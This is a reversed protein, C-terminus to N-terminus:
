YEVIGCAHPWLADCESGNVTFLFVTRGSLLDIIQHQAFREMGDEGPPPTHFRYGYTSSLGYHMISTVSGVSNRPFKFYCIADVPTSATLAASPTAGGSGAAGTTTVAAVGKAESVAKHAAVSLPNRSGGSFVSLGVSQAVTQASAAGVGFQWLQLDNHTEVWVQGVASGIYVATTRGDGTPLPRLAGGSWVVAGRSSTLVM